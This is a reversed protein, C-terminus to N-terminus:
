ELTMRTRDHAPAASAAAHRPTPADFRSTVEQVVGTQASEMARFMIELVHYSHEPTIYPTSGTRVCDVLHTLGDTWPWNRSVGEFVSWRQSANTWLELGEPAWDDGLLQVTGDLGYVEVAPGRYKQMGFATTVTSLAGGEHRLVIQYTDDTQVATRVGEVTREPRTLTSLASVIAAPGLLATLSTISYVGLDFLPGGGQEYFWRGWEPGDWGYRARGLLPRGVSGDQVIRLMRQFDPSLTVHPACVLLGKSTKSLAVLEAAEDLTTAMPKEVLVSKGARLARLSLSGHHLMSTLVVVIDITEDNLVDDIELSCEVPFGQEVIALQDANVDVVVVRDVAGRQRLTMLLPLYAEQAVNGGGIVAVSLPRDM